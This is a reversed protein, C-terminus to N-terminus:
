RVLMVTGKQERYEGISTKYQILYGYIGEEYHGGDWGQTQDATEFVKNGWRDFVSLKYDAKDVYNLVPLFVKNYGKPVFANPVFLNADIYIDALNSQSLESFGYTDGAGEIAEVYYTFKGNYDAYASLDDTYTYTGGGVTTVPTSSFVGDLSRYINFGSVGGLWVNYATWDLTATLDNNAHAVLHVTNSTDTKMIPNMCTDLAVVKYYFSHASADVYIDTFAYNSAGNAPVVGVSSFPGAYASSHFVEFGGLKVTNDVYWAVDVRESPNNVSVKKLYFYSPVLGQSPIICFKNSSSSVTNTPNHARVIYCYQNGDALGKHKYKLATTDGVHIFPGNNTSCLIEYRAVGGRMNVYPNWSLNATHGCIDYIVQLYMTNQPNLAIQSINGCSDLAAVSYVESTNNALSATYTYITAVNNTCITDIAVYTNNTYKYIVFCKTDGSYSPSIGMVAHGNSDVSVSDLGPPAPPNKDIFTTGKINSVSIYGLVPDFLQIRYNITDHCVSITDTFYYNAPTTTTNTPVTAIKNWGGPVPYERWVEYKASEGVPLPFTFDNWQLKAYQSLPPSNLVLFISQVTDIAAVEANAQTKVRVFFFYKLNNANCAFCTANDVSYTPISAMNTYVGNLTSSFYVEYSKFEGLPDAPKEWYVTVMGNAQVLVSRIQPSTIARAGFSLVMFLVIYKLLGKLGNNV